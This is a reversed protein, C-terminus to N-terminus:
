RHLKADVMHIVDGISRRDAYGVSIVLRKALEDEFTLDIDIEFPEKLEGAALVEDLCIRGDVQVELRVKGSPNADPDFGVRGTLKRYRSALPFSVKGGGKIALGRDYKQRRREGSEDIEFLHLPRGMYSKDMRAISFAKLSSAIKPSALLPVWDNTSPDLDSLWEFRGAGFDISKVLSVDSLLEVGSVSKIAFQQASKEVSRFQVASGDVLTIKGASAEPSSGLRDYFILGTIRDRKVDATREGISFSVTKDSIDGLLGDIKQLKENREVILGDGTRKDNVLENWEAIQEDLIKELLVYNVKRSGLEIDIGSVLKLRIASDTMGVSRARLVSGDVLRVEAPTKVGSADVATEDSMFSEFDIGILSEVSHAKEEGAVVSILTNSDLSKVMGSFQSGDGLTITAKETAQQAALLLGPWWALALILIGMRGPWDIM